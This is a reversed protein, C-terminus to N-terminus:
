FHRPVDMNEHLVRLITIGPREKIYFLLHNEYPFVKLGKFLEDCNKGLAPTRALNGVLEELGDVYKGAQDAGWHLITYEIIHELDREAKASFRYSPV